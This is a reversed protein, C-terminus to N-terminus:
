AAISAERTAFSNMLVLPLRAHTRERLARIQHVTIDLFTLGDKVELLSKPGTMGMSTGLGGNLKIVVTQALAERAGAEDDPLEDADPLEDVPEIEAEALTGKEGAQLLEYYHAFTRVAVDAVGDARMKELASGLADDSM